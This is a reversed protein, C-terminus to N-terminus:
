KNLISILSNLDKEARMEYPDKAFSAILTNVNYKRCFRLNQKIRGLIIAAKQKDANLLSSFSFGIIIDNQCALKCLVQNLGSARLHMPDRQTSYEMDYILSPKLKEMTKQDNDSSISIVFRCLNKAKSIDNPQAILGLKLKIKTTQQLSEVLEKIPNINKQYTYILYLEKIYLKEAIEIFKKENKNPFIIDM